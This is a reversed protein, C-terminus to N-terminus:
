EKSITVYIMPRRHTESYLYNGLKQEVEKRRELIQQKSENQM